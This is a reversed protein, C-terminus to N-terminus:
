VIDRVDPNARLLAEAMQAAAGVVHECNDLMLVLQKPRLANAVRETSAVGASMEIGLVSAVSIPVLAPDSLPALEVIWAGDAFRPLLQRAAEIGLRTKGIGGAGALTVLRHAASLDLIEGLEADRGILESVPEPLNTQAHRPMAAQLAVGATVSVHPPAPVTRIEGAFQYGRGAITRILDRDPGFVRRLASIQAQLNNEEVMRDPWVRGILADKGVVAGCAEILAMLVDFARGGLELPRNDALLERRQLLVRFRGFDVATSADIAPDM